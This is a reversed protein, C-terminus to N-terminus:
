EDAYRIYKMWESRFRKYDSRLMRRIQENEAAETAPSYYECPKGGGCQDGFVCSSCKRGKM